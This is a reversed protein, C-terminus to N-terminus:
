GSYLTCNNVLCIPLNLWWVRSIGLLSAGHALTHAEWNNSRPLFRFYFVSFFSSLSMIDEVIVRAVWDLSSINCTLGKIISQCDSLVVLAPHHLVRAFLIGDRLAEAEVTAASASTEIKSKVLIFRGEHDRIVVSRGGKHTTSRWAGDTSIVFHVEPTRFPLNDVTPCGVNSSQSALCINGEIISTAICSMTSHLNPDGHNFVVNNRAKWIQWITSSWAIHFDMLCPVDKYRVFLFNLWDKMDWFQLTTLLWWPM